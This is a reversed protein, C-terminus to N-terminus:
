IYVCVCVCVCMYIYICMHTHEHTELANSVTKKKAGLYKLFLEEKEKGKNLNRLNVVDYGEMKRQLKHEFKM